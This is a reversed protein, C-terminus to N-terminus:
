QKEEPMRSLFLNSIRLSVKWTLRWVEKNRKWVNMQIDKHARNYIIGEFTKWSM